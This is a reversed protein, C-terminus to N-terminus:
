GGAKRKWRAGQLAERLVTGTALPGRPGWVGRKRLEVAVREAIGEKSDHCGTARDYEDLDNAIHRAEDQWARGPSVPEAPAVGAPAAKPRGSLSAVVEPHAGANLEAVLDHFPTLSAPGPLNALARLDDPVLRIASAPIPEVSRLRRGGIMLALPMATAADVNDFAVLQDLFDGAQAVEATVAGRFAVGEGTLADELQWGPSLLVRVSDLGLRDCDGHLLVALRELVLQPTWADGTKASLYSAATAPGSFKQHQM